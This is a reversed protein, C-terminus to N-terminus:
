GVRDLFTLTSDPTAIHPALLRNFTLNAPDSLHAQFSSDDAYREIVVFRNPEGRETYIEFRVAGPDDRVKAAYNSVLTHVADREGERCEFRAILDISM